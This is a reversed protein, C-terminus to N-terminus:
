FSFFGKKQPPRFSSFVSSTKNICKVFSNVICVFAIKNFGLIIKTNLYEHSCQGNYLATTAIQIWECRRLAIYVFWVRATM